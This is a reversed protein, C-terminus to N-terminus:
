KNCLIELKIVYFLLLYLHFNTYYLKVYFVRYKPSKFAVFPLLFIYSPPFDRETRWWKLCYVSFGLLKRCCFSVVLLTKKTTM